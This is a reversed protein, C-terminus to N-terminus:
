DSRNLHWGFLFGALMDAGSTEGTQLIRTVAATVATAAGPLSHVLDHWADSAHGQRAAWLYARSIRGTRPAATGLILAALIQAGLPRSAEPWLRLALLFGALVDDGSPTLGPGLGALQGVAGTVGAADGSRVAKGLDELASGGQLLLLSRGSGSAEVVARSLGDEPAHDILHAEVIRMGEQPRGELLPLTPDWPVSAALDILFDGLHLTRDEIRAGEGPQLAAFSPSGAVTLAFAGRGLSEALIAILQGQDTEAYTSREFSALVRGSAGPSEFFPRVPTAVALASLTPTVAGM